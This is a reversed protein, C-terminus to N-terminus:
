QVGARGVLPPPVVPGDVYDVVDVVDMTFACLPRNPKGDPRLPRCKPVAHYLTMVAAFNPFRAAHAIDATIRVDGLGGHAEPDYWQLYAGDWPQPGIVGYLRVVKAM